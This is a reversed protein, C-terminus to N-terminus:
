EESEEEVDNKKEDSVEAEITNENTVDMFTVGVPIEEELIQNDAMRKQLKEKVGAPLGAVKRPRKSSEDSNEIIQIADSRSNDLKVSKMMEERREDFLKDKEKEQDMHTKVLMQMEQELYVPDIDDIDVPNFPLWYGVQGVFVHFTPDKERLSEAKKQAIDSTPYVGRFKVIRRNTEHDVMKDYENSLEKYKISKFDSYRDYLEHLDWKYEGDPKIDHRKCFQLYLIQSYQSIFKDMMYSEKHALRDVTPEVFSMCCWAQGSIPDDVKLYDITVPTDGEKNEEKNEEKNKEHNTDTTSM